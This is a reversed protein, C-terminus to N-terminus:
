ADKRTHGVAVTTRDRQQKCFQFSFNYCILNTCHLLYETSIRPQRPLRNFSASSSIYSFSEENGKSRGPIPINM